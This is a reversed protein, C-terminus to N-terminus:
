FKGTEVLVGLTIIIIDYLEILTELQCNAKKLSELIYSLVISPTTTLKLNVMQGTHYM